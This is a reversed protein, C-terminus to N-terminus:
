PLVSVMYAEIQPATTRIAGPGIAGSILGVGRLGFLYRLILMGDTLADLQGNGDIDLLPQIDDLHQIVAGPSMLGAGPGLAGATLADGTIGFLYRIMLLGDTLADYADNEDADLRLAYIDNPAFVAKVNRVGAASIVCAARGTCSGLWGTFVSNADAPTAELTVSLVGNFTANCTPACDIGPAVSAVTGAGSGAITVNVTIDVTTSRAFVTGRYPAENTYETTGFITGAADRYV